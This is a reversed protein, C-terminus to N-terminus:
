KKCVFGFAKEADSDALIQHWDPDRSKERMMRHACDIDLVSFNTRNDLRYRIPFSRIDGDTNIHAADVAFDKGIVYWNYAQDDAAAALPLITLLALIPTKMDDGKPSILGDILSPPHEQTISSQFGFHFGFGLVRGRLV